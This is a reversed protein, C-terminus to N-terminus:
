VGILALYANGGLLALMTSQNRKKSIVIIMRSLAKKLKALPSKPKHSVTPLINAVAIIPIAKIRLCPRAVARLNLFLM